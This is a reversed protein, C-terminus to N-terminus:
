KALLGKGKKFSIFEDPTRVSFEGESVFMLCAENNQYLKPIRNFTSMAIKEFVVQGKCKLVTQELAM